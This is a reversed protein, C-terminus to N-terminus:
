GGNLIKSCVFTQQITWLSEPPTIGLECKLRSINLATKSNRKVSEHLNSEEVTIPKVQVKNAGLLNTAMFAIDTYSFDKDGSLHLIGKINRDIVLRVVSVVFSLPIPAIYMDSFPYISDGKKLALSWDDFLPNQPGFVKTLRLITVHSPYLKLLQQEVESKQKGYETIPSTADEHSPYKKSGDFVANSSLFVIRKCNNALIGALKLVSEVNVKRSILKDKECKEAKTIGSCFVVVDFAEMSELFKWEVVEDKLDLYIRDDDATLKERTTSIVFENANQLFNVLASGILGDGGIILYRNKSVM